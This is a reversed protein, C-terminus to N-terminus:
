KQDTHHLNALLRGMLAVLIATSVGLTLVGSVGAFTGFIRSGPGLTVDGYGVTSYTVLAFYLSTNLDEIVGMLLFAKAWIWVQVTHSVTIMGFAAGVVVSVRVFRGRHSLSQGLRSLYDTLMAIAIVHLIACLTLFVSGWFLQTHLAM